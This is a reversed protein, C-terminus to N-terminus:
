SNKRDVRSSKRAGLNRYTPTLSHCNPCLVRLNSRENNLGDGDIHDIELPVTDSVPHKENWGCKTCKHEAENLLYIRMWSPISNGGKRIFMKGNLWESIKLSNQYDNQCKNDCYPQGKRKTINGCSKCEM